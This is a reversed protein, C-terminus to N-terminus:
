TIDVITSMLRYLYFIVFNQTGLFMKEKKSVVVTMDDNQSVKKEALLSAKRHTKKSAEMDAELFSSAKLESM